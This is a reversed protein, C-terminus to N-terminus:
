RASLPELESVHKLCSAKEYKPPKENKPPQPAPLYFFRKTEMRLINSCQSAKPRVNTKASVCPCRHIKLENPM